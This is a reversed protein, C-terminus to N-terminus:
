ATPAAEGMIRCPMSVVSPEGEAGLISATWVHTGPRDVPVIASWQGREDSETEAVCRVGDFLAVTSQAPATGSIILERDTTRTGSSPSTIAVAPTNQAAAKVAPVAQASAAAVMAKRVSPDARVFRPCTFHRNRSCIASVYNQSVPEPEEPDSLCLHGEGKEPTRLFPCLNSVRSTRAARAM